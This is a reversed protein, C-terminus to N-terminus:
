QDNEVLFGPSISNERELQKQSNSDLDMLLHQTMGYNGGSNSHLSYLLIHTSSSKPVVHYIIINLPQAHHSRSDKIINNFEQWSTAVNFLGFTDYILSTM